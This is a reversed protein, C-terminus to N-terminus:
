APFEAWVCKGDRAVPAVWWDTAFADVLRLGNSEAEPPGMDRRADCVGIRFTDATRESVLSIPPAGHRVANTVLESV